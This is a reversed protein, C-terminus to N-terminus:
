TSSSRQAGATARWLGSPVYDLDHEEAISWARDEYREAMVIHPEKVAPDIAAAAANREARARNLNHEVEERASYSLLSVVFRGSHGWALLMHMLPFDDNVDM